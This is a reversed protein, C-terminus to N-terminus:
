QGWAGQTLGGGVRGQRPEELASAPDERGSPRPCCLGCSCGLPPRVVQVGGVTGWLSFLKLAWTTGSSSCGLGRGM